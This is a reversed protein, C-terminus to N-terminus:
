AGYNFIERSTDFRDFLRGLWVIGIAAEALLGFAALMSAFPVVALGILRYGAFWMAGFLLAAPVAAILLSVATAVGTILRQGMAEVGRQHEKGLQVWGPLLLVAANQVLIGIFGFCPLLLAAGIAVYIRGSVSLARTEMGPLLGAALLVLVWQFIALVTAPGLVEGLVIGWGPVPYSKLLDVNRLDTRLDDRFLIPGMLTLFGSIGVAMWGIM